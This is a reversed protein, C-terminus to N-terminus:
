KRSQIPFRTQVEWPEIEGAIIQFLPSPEPEKLERVAAYKEPDRTKLKRLLHDWEYHLQGRTCRLIIRRKSGIIKLGDFNYGRALSENYVFRLYAAIAKVPDKHARFRLLQPHNRYGRTGGRLVKQALLGERWAALLGKTDLHKPHITWLRM